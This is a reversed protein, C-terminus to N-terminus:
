NKLKFILYIVPFLVAQHGLYILLSNKSLFRFFSKLRHEPIAVKHLGIHYFYIGMLMCGLWPLLAVHDVPAPVLRPLPYDYQYFVSPFLLSLGVFLSLKPKGLFALCILSSIAINHIVGFYVWRTPFIFYTVVSISLAVVLLKITRHFIKKWNISKSHVISLSIGASMLFLFVIIKPQLVWFTEREVNFGVLRFYSLDFFLHYIIMMIVAIAKIHDLSDFRGNTKIDLEKQM